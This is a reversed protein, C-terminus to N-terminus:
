RSKGIDGPVFTGLLENKFFARFFNIFNDLFDDYHLVNKPLTTFTARKEAFNYFLGLFPNQLLQKLLLCQLHETLFPTRLFKMFEM